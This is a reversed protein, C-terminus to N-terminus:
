TSQQMKTPCCGAILLTQLKLLSLMEHPMLGDKIQITAAQSQSERRCKAQVRLRARGWRCCKEANSECLLPQRKRPLFSCWRCALLSSSKRAKPILAGLPSHLPYPAAQFVSIIRWEAPWCMELGEHRPILTTTAHIAFSLARKMIWSASLM